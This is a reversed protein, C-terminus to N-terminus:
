LRKARPPRKYLRRRRVSVVDEWLAQLGKLVDDLSKIIDPMVRATESLAMAIMNKEFGIPLRRVAKRGKELSKSVYEMVRKVAGLESILLRLAKVKDKAEMDPIAEILDIITRIIVAQGTLM